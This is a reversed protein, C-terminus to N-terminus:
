LAARRYVARAKAAALFNRPMMKWVKFFPQTKSPTGFPTMACAAHREPCDVYTIAVCVTRILVPDGVVAM